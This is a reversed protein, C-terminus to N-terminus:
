KTKASSANESNTSNNSIPPIIVKYTKEDIKKLETFLFTKSFVTEGQKNIAQISYKGQILWQIKVSENPNVNGYLDNEIYVTLIQNTQNEIILYFEPSGRYFWDCGNLMLLIVFLIGWLLIFNIISKKMVAHM